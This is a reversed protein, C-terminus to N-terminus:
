WVSEEEEVFQQSNKFDSDSVYDDYGKPRLIKFPNIYDKFFIGQVFCDADDPSVGGSEIKIKSKKWIKWRKDSAYEYPINALQGHLIDCDEVPIEKNLIKDRTTMYMEARLNFYRKKEYAESGYVVSIVQCQLHSSRGYVAQQLGDIVGAGEGRDIVFGFTNYQSELRLALGIIHNTNTINIRETHLVYHNEFVKVVCYDKGERSPDISIFRKIDRYIPRINICRKIENLRLLKGESSGEYDIDLEQAVAIPNNRREVERDYWPSRINHGNKWLFNAEKFDVLVKTGNELLEYCGKVKNPHLTWHLSMKEIGSRSLIAFQNISGKPTSLASRCNTTDATGEWANKDCDWFAFEDFRIRYKRGGRGFNDNTAEGSIVSNTESNIFRMRNSHDNFNFGDPLLWDPSKRALYRFKEFISDMDGKTDVYQEKRSGWRIEIRIATFLWDYFDNAIFLWSAGMDRSKEIFNDINKTACEADWLVVDEQFPYLIFPLHRDKTRPDYTWAFVNFWYLRDRKCKEKISEQLTPNNKCKNILNARYRKNEILSKPYIPM